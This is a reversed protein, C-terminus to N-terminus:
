AKAFSQLKMTYGARGQTASRLRTSFGFLQRLPAVGEIVKLGAADYLNEVRGLCTGFLNMASGLQEEPTRIEVFMLPELQILGANELAQRMAHSAAIRCGVPTTVGEQRNLATLTIRIDQMPYGTLPGSLLADQIGGLAEDVLNKPAFLPNKAEKPDTILPTHVEEGTGPALPMVTLTVEGQQRTNGLEKDFIVTASAEHAITERYIVQPNTTRPEISYERTLKEKLVDLHLEGMGSVLRHGSGEDLVVSLTPDEAVYRTLAEDLTKGEDSNRPEFALSIVPTYAELPELLIYPPTPATLTDGTQVSKPGILAIIDGCYAETLAERNDAHLRFMRSIRETERKGVNRVSDSEKLTGSYIRTLAVKRSGEMIIKFVLAVLPANTKPEIRVPEAKEAHHSEFPLAMLLPVDLPSPLYAILADMLPQIGTNKLASGAFTPCLKRALTARRIAQQISATTLAATGEPSDAAILYTELFDEDNEALTELMRSRWLEIISTEKVDPLRMTIERGQSAEDFLLVQQTILNAIAYFYEGEGLPITTPLPMAGLRSTISSLAHAFDAGLRDMKNIFILKPVAFHESQKWVTESQPEVGAVGCFVGVAGDLVRLSREVEITFDVHGPTDILNINANGWTFSTASANITIGREQEEPMFDMTATGDHVEGLKHIKQSYFLMRESVTTKGADIHAIVGINRIHSIDPKPM